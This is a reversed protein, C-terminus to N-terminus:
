RRRREIMSEKEDKKNEEEIANIKKLTDRSRGCGRHDGSGAVGSLDLYRVDCPQLVYFYSHFEVTKQFFQRIYRVGSFFRASYISFSEDGMRRTKKRYGCM